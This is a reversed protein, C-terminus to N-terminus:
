SAEKRYLSSLKVEENNMIRRFNEMHKVMFLVALLFAVVIPGRGTTYATYTIFSIYLVLTGTVFYNTVVAFLLLLILGIVAIKWDFYLLIGFFSATGKGGKFSMTLPFNHGIVVFLANVYLLLIQLDYSVVYNQLLYATVFLSITAKFVDIFAVLVGFKWGLLVTTNTAGANKMGNNKIDINKMKGVIQSGNICGFLYGIMMIIFILLYM